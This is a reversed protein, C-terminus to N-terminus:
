GLIYDITITAPTANIMAQVQDPKAARKRLVLLYDRAKTNNGSNLAAEAAILYTESM